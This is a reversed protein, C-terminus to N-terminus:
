RAVLLLATIRLTPREFILLTASLLGSFLLFLFLLGKAQDL